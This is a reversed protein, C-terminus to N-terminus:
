QSMPYVGSQAVFARALDLVQVHGEPSDWVASRPTGVGPVCLTPYVEAEATEIWACVALQCLHQGAVRGSDLRDEAFIDAASPRSSASTTGQQRRQRQERHLTPQLRAEVAGRVRPEAFGYRRNM